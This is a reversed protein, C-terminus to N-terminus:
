KMKPKPFLVMNELVPTSGMENVNWDLWFIINNNKINDTFQLM